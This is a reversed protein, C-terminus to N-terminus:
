DLFDKENWNTIIWQRHNCVLVRYSGWIKRTLRWDSLLWIMIWLFGRTGCRRRVMSPLKPINFADQSSALSLIALMEKKADQTHGVDEYFWLTQPVLGQKVAVLFRKIAPTNSGAEGWWIRHDADLEAFKEKRVRWCTGPPPGNIVRGSPCEISYTAQSYYNRASLDSAKWAGRADADPNSYRAEM